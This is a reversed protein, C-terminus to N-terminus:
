HIREQAIGEKVLVSKQMENVVVVSVCRQLAAILRGRLRPRLQRFGENFSGSHITVITPVFHSLGTLLACFMGLRSMITSVHLHIVTPVGDFATRILRLPNRRPRVVYEPTS